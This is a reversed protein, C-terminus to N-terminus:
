SQRNARRSAWITGALVTATGAVWRKIEFAVHGRHVAIAVVAQVGGVVAVLIVAPVLRSLEPV